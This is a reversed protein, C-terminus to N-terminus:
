QSTVEMTLFIDCFASYRQKWIGNEKVLYTPVNTRTAADKAGLRLTYDLMVIASQGDDSVIVERITYGELTPAVEEIRDRFALEDAKTEGYSDNYAIFPYVAAYDKKLMGELICKTTNQPTLVIIGSRELVGLVAGEGDNEMSILGLDQSRIRQGVGTSDRDVMLQVQSYGTAEVLTNVVSYVALEKQASNEITAPWELFEKSLTVTLVGGSSNVNVVQTDKNILYNYEGNTAQPGKFLEELVSKELRDNAAAAITRTEAVLYKMDANGYYLQVTLDETRAAESMPSIEIQESSKYEEAKCGSLFCMAFVLLLLVIRKM